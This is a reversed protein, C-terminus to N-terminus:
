PTPRTCFPSAIAPNPAHAWDLGPQLAPTGCDRHATQLLPHLPRTLPSACTRGNQATRNEPRPTVWAHARM